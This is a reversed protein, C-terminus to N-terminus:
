SFVFIDDTGNSRSRLNIGQLFFWDKGIPFFLNGCFVFFRWDAFNFEQLFKTGCLLKCYNLNKKFKLICEFLGLEM